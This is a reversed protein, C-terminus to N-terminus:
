VVPAHDERLQRLWAQSQPTAGDLADVVQLLFTTDGHNKLELVVKDYDGELITLLLRRHRQVNGELGEITRRAQNNMAMCLHLQMAMRRYTDEVRRHGALGVLAIHFEFGALIMAVDDGPEVLREMDALRDWCRQVRPEELDPLALRLALLELEKRLTVIEYVDHQTLPSVRVGKRPVHEVLGMLTLNRLAERVPPRSVGLEASLSEETLREGPFFRGALIARQIRETALAALSPAMLPAQQVTSSM